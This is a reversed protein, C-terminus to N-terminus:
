CIGLTLVPFGTWVTAGLAAVALSLSALRVFHFPPPANRLRRVLSVILAANTLVMAAFLAVLLIRAEGASFGGIGCIAGHTGYLVVFAASWVTFGAILGLAEVNSRGGSM